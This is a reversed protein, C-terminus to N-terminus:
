LIFRIKEVTKIETNTITVVESKKKKLDKILKESEKKYEKFEDKTLQLRGIEYVNLSDRIKYEKNSNMLTTNNMSLRNKEKLLNDYQRYGISVTLLLLVIIGILYKTM